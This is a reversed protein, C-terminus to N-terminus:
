CPVGFHLNPLNNEKEFPQKEPEMKIKPPTDVPKIHTTWWWFKEHYFDNMWLTFSRLVEFFVECPVCPELNPSKLPSSKWRKSFFHLKGIGPTPFKQPPSANMTQTKEFFVIFLFPIHWELNTTKKWFELNTPKWPPFYKSSRCSPVKESTKKKKRPKFRSAKTIFLLWIADIHKKRNRSSGYSGNNTEKM